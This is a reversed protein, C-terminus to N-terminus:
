THGTAPPYPHIVLRGPQRLDIWAVPRDLLSMSTQLDGLQALADQENLAPLRVVTADKLTLNWRLGDIREAAVVHSFVPKQAQLESMLTAAQAPADQGVLLLLAPNRRKAAAADQNAIVNGAKDILVFKPAGSADATQWIAYPAREAITVIITGPLARQVIATQVPGLQEIRAAAETLSFGLSPDGKIVGLAAAIVPLPTTDAGHIEIAEVRFGLAAAVSAFGHRITGAPSIAPGVEPIARLAESGIAMVAVVGFFWIGPKLSRKVRRMFLTRATLRDQQVIPKKVRARPLPRTVAEPKSPVNRTASLRPM